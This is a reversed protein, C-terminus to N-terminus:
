TDSHTQWGKAAWAQGCAALSGQNVAPAPLFAGSQSRSSSATVKLKDFISNYTSIPCKQVRIGHGTIDPRHKRVSQLFFVNQKVAGHLWSIIYLFM